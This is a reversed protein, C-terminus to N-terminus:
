KGESVALQILNQPYIDSVLCSWLTNMVATTTRRYPIAVLQDAMALVLEVNIHNLYGFGYAILSIDQPNLKHLLELSREAFREMLEHNYYSVKSCAWVFTSLTRPSCNSLLGGSIVEESLRNFLHDDYHILHGFSWLLMCLSQEKSSGIKDATVQGVKSLLSEKTVGMKVMSWVIISLDWMPIQNLNSEVLSILPDTLQKPWHDMIVYSWCIFGIHPIMMQPKSVIRSTVEASVNGLLVQYDNQLNYHALSWCVSMLHEEALKKVEEKQILSLLEAILKSDKYHNQKCLWLMHGAQDATITSLFAHMVEPYLYHSYVRRSEKNLDILSLMAREISKSTQTRNQFSDLIDELSKSVSSYSGLPRSM